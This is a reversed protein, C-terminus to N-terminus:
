IKSLVEFASGRFVTSKLMEDFLSMAKNVYVMDTDEAEYLGNLAGVVIKVPESGDYHPGTFSNPKDYDNYNAILDICKQPYQKSCKVLFDLYYHPEKIAVKSTHYIEIFKLYENFHIPEIDHLFAGNYEQIIEKADSELFMCFLEFCKQRTTEDANIFNKVSVDIMKSKAKDSKQWTQQLLEYSGDKNNLWALALIISVHEIESEFALIREFYPILSEFKYRSLYQATNLSYKYIEEEQTNDTFALFAKLTKEKGLHMLYALYNLAAVRVKTSPDNASNLVAEFIQEAFEKKYYCKVVEGIATARVSDLTSNIQTSDVTNQSTNDKIYSHTCLFDFVEKDVLHNNHLYNTLYLLYLLGIDSSIRVMALKFLNVFREPDFAAKELASLGETIYDDDVHEKTLITELFPYFKETDGQVAKGFERSHEILGGRYDQFIDNRYQRNFQKMTKLWSDFSLYSYAKDELPPGVRHLISRSPLKNKPTTYLRELEQFRKKAIPMKNIDVKPLSSLYIFELHGFSSHLSKKGDSNHIYYEGHVPKLTLIINTLENKQGDTFYQFSVQLLNRLHYQLSNNEPDVLLANKALTFAFDKYTYPDEAVSSILIIQFTQYETNQYQNLFHYFANSKAKALKLAAHFVLSILKNDEDDEHTKNFDYFDYLSDRKFTGKGEIFSTRKNNKAINRDLLEVGFEFFRDCDNKELKEFINGTHHDYMSAHQNPPLKPEDKYVIKLQEMSWEYHYDVTNSIISLRDYWDDNINGIYKEYIKLSFPNAWNKFGLMIWLITRSDDKFRPLQYLYDLAKNENNAFSKRIISSWLGNYFETEGNLTTKRKKIFFSVLKLFINSESNNIFILKDIIKHECLVPFWSDGVASELFPLFYLKKHLLKKTVLSIEQQRPSQLFGLEHIILLQIHFRYKDSLLIKKILLFYTDFDVQRYFALMIKLTSRIYISQNEQIIYDELSKKTEVFFRAFVYDYFTQHFFQVQKESILILGRNKLFTLVNSDLINLDKVDVSLRSLSYFKEAIKYLVSTVTIYDYESTNGTEQRWLEDMLDMATNIRNLNLQLNYIKCFIELYAPIRLLDILQASLNILKINFKSLINELEAESLKEVEVKEFKRFYSFEFDYTLDFERIAVVIRVKNRIFDPKDKTISLINNILQRYVDLYIRKSTVTSSLSDIQDILVVVKEHKKLLEDLLKELPYKLNTAENFKDISEVYYRDAKIGLVPIKNENLYSLTEKLIVSKGFGPNGSLMLLPDKEKVLPNSLWTLVKQTEIRKIHTDGTNSLTGKWDQLQISAANFRQLIDNETFELKLLKNPLENINKLLVSIGESLQSNDVVTKLAFFLSQVNLNFPKNLEVDLDEPTIRKIKISKLKLFLEERIINFELCGLTATYKKKLDNFWDEISTEKIFEENLNNLLDVAPKSFGKSVAFYYHFGEITPMLTNDVITYLIFKLIEKSVETKDVNKTYKKCQIVGKAKGEKYLICDAGGDGSAVTLYIDDFLINWDKENIIKQRYITYILEEFRRDSPLLNYIFGGNPPVLTKDDFDTIKPKSLSIM